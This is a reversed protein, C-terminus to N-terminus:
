LRIDYISITSLLMVVVISGVLLGMAIIMLPEILTILNTLREEYAKRLRGEMEAFVGGMRGSQEGVEIVGEYAKPFFGSKAVAESFKAGQKVAERAHTLRPRIRCNGVTGVAHGLADALLVGSNLMMAMASTFRLNEAALVLNRVVPLKLVLGDLVRRLNPFRPLRALGVPTLLLAALGGWQYRTFLRAAHLLIETALPPNEMRNFLVAFRPVVFNFIFVVALVCVVLVVMPYIMAQRTRAKMEKRFGLGAALQAFAEALRGSTEGIDVVSLYLSDFLDPHKALAQALSIGSRVNERIEHTTQKLIENTVVHGSTELARDVRIGNTLLMAM